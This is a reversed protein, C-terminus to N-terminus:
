WWRTRRCRTRCITSCHISMATCTNYKRDQGPTTLTTFSASFDAGLTKALVQLAVPNAVMEHDMFSMERPPQMGFIGRGKGYSPPERGIRPHLRLYRERLPVLATRIKMLLEKSVVGELLMYGESQLQATAAEVTKKNICGKKLESETPKVDM